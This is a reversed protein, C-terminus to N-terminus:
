QSILNVKPHKTLKWQGSNLDICNFEIKYKANPTSAYTTIESIRVGESPDIDAGFGAIKKPAEFLSDIQLSALDQFINIRSALRNKNELTAKYMKNVTESDVKSNRSLEQMMKKIEAKSSIYCNRYISNNDAKKVYEFYTSVFMKASQMEKVETKCGILMYLIALLLLTSKLNM